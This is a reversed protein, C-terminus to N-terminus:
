GHVTPERGVEKDRAVTGLLRILDGDEDVWEVKSGNELDIRVVTVM